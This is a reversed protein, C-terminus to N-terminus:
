PSTTKVNGYNTVSITNSSGQYLIQFSSATSGGVTMSVTGNPQFQLVATGSIQVPSGSLPVSTGVNTFTTTGVPKSAVQYSPNYGSSNGSITAQFPYGEELAQFRISQIAWTANAVASNLRYSTLVASTIPLACATLLTGVLLVMILEIISFGAEPNIRNLSKSSASANHQEM